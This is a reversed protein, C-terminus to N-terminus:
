AKGRVSPAWFVPNASWPLTTGQCHAGLGMVLNGVPHSKRSHAAATQGLMLQKAWRLRWKEQKLHSSCLATPM